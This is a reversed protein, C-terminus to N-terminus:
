AKWMSVEVVKQGPSEEEESLLLHPRHGESDCPPLLALGLSWVPPSSGMDPVDAQPNIRALFVGGTPLAMLM